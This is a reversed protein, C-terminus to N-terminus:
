KGERAVTLDYWVKLAKIAKQEDVHIQEIVFDFVPKWRDWVKPPRDDKQRKIYDIAKQKDQKLVALAASIQSASLESNRAREFLQYGIKGSQDSSSISQRTPVSEFREKAIGPHPLLSGLGQERGDGIGQILMAELNSIKEEVVFVSGPTIVKRASIRGRNHTQKGKAHRNWGFLVSIAASMNGQEVSGWGAEKVLRHLVSDADQIDWSEPILLPSQVIFVRQKKDDIKLNNLNEIDFIEAKLQGNGRVSRSKGLQVYSNAQLSSLFVRAASVPMVVLGSFNMPYAISEVTFFNRGQNQDDHVGHASVIRPMDASRWLKIQNDSVILVGDASKLPAGHAVTKWDYPEISEDCFKYCNDVHDKLKSIRHTTSVRVPLNKSAIPQPLLPWVRFVHSNFCQDAEQTNLRNIRHLIMGQVASAPITFGSRITNNGVIPLEPVCISSEATFDLKLFVYEKDFTPFQIMPAEFRVLNEIDLEANKLLTNLIEGPTRIEGDLTLFCTGCGRNRNGGIAMISLLGLRVLLDAAPAPQGPFIVSGKFRTKCPISENTRLSTEDATGFENLRTRTVTRVQCDKNEVVANTLSFLSSDSFEWGGEHGFVSTILKSLDDRQLQQSVNQLFDRMLGKIHTAPIIPNGAHDRPVLRNVLETGFGSGPEADSKLHITYNITIM